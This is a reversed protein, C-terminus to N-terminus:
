SAAGTNAPADDGTATLDVHMVKERQADILKQIADALKARDNTKLGTLQKAAKTCSVGRSIRMGAAEIKLGSKIAVLRFVEVAERGVCSISGGEHLEIRDMTPITTAKTM